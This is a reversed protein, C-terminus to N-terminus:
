DQAQQIAEAKLASLDADGQWAQFGPLRFLREAQRADGLVLEDMWDALREKEGLELFLVTRQKCLGAHWASAVLGARTAELADKVNGEAQLEEALALWEGAGGDGGDRKGTLVERPVALAALSFVVGFLLLLGASRSRSSPSLKM